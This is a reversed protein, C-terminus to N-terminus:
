PTPKPPSGSLPLERFLPELLEDLKRPFADPLRAALAFYRAIEHALKTTYTNLTPIATTPPRRADSGLVAEVALYRLLRPVEAFFLPSETVTRFVQLFRGWEPLTLEHEQKAQFLEGASPTKLAEVSKALQSLYRYQERGGYIFAKLQGDIANRDDSVLYLHFLRALMQSFAVSFLGITDLVLAVHSKNGADLKERLQRVNFLTYRLAREPPDVWFRGRRYALLQRFDPTAQLGGELQAWAATDFIAPSPASSAALKAKLIEFEADDLLTIGLSSGVLKHDEEAHPQLLLYSQAAKFYDMLGRLWLTRNVPSGGRTSCDGLVKDIRLSNTLKIGLVDVDTILKREAGLGESHALEVKLQVFYGWSWFLKALEAKLRADKEM